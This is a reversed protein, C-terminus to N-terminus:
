ARVLNRGYGSQFRAQSEAQAIATASIIGIQGTGSNTVNTLTGSAIVCSEASTRLRGSSDVNLKKINNEAIRQVFPEDRINGVHTTDWTEERTGM